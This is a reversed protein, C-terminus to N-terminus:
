LSSRCRRDLVHAVRRNHVRLALTSVEILPTPGDSPDRPVGRLLQSSGLILGGEAPPRPLLAAAGGALGAQVQRSLGDAIIQYEDARGAYATVAQATTAM